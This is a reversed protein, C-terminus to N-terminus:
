YAPHRSEALISIKKSRGCGTWRPWHAKNVRSTMLNTISSLPGVPQWSKAYLLWTSIEYSQGLHSRLSTPWSVHWSVAKLRSFQFGLFTAIQSDPIGCFIFVSLIFMQEAGFTPLTRIVLFLFFSPRMQHMKSGIQGHVLCMSCKCVQKSM